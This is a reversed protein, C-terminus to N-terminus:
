IQGTLAKIRKGGTEGEGNFSTQIVDGWEEWKEPRSTFRM